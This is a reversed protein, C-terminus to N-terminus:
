RTVAPRPIDPIVFRLALRGRLNDFPLFIATCVRRDRTM